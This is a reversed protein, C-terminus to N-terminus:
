VGALLKFLWALLNPFNAANTIQVSGWPIAVGSDMAIQTFLPAMIEGMALECIVVIACFIIGKLMNNKFFPMFGAALIFGVSLMGIPLVNNWPLIVSLILAIPILLLGVALCEPSHSMVVGDLGIYIERDKFKDKAFKTLVTTTENLGEILIKTSLPVFYLAAGIKIGVMFSDTISFGAFLGMVIGLFFGMVGPEGIPGMKEKIQNADLKSDRIFPVMDFLKNFVYAIPGYFCNYVYPFSLGKYQPYVEHIHPANWDAVILTIAGTIVMALIAFLFNGKTAIYTLVGVSGWFYMINYIDVNLTKTLKLVLMLINIGIGVPIAWIIVPNSMIIPTVGNGFDVITKTLGLNQVMANGVESVTVLFVSFAFTSLAFLGLAYMFAAKISKQIGVGLVLNIVLFLLFMMVPGPLSGFWNIADALIKM